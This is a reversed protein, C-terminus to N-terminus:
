SHPVYRASMWAVPDDRMDRLFGVVQRSSLNGRRGTWGISGRYDAGSELKSLLSAQCGIMRDRRPQDTEAIFDLFRACLWGADAEGQDPARLTLQQPSAARTGFLANIHYTDVARELTFGERAWVRQVRLNGVQTSIELTSFGRQLFYRQTFRILDTYIGRGAFDPSVGHLVGQCRGTRVEFASCALGAIRGDVCAVWCTRNDADVHSLAWECYGAVIEGRPLLPNACYHNPYEAFVSQVLETIGPVDDHAASRIELSPNFLDQPTHRALDCSHTVLTDAHIPSFGMAQLAAIGPAPGAPIRLIAVDVRNGILERALAGADLADDVLVARAVNLGFRDSELKAPSLM